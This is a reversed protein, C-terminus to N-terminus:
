NKKSPAFVSGKHKFKANWFVEELTSDSVTNWRGKGQFLHSGAGPGKQLDAFLSNM